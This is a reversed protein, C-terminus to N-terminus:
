GRAPAARFTAARQIGLPDIFRGSTATREDSASDWTGGDARHAAIARVVVHPGSGFEDPAGAMYSPESPVAGSLGM